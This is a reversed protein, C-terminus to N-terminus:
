AQHGFSIHVYIYIYIYLSVLSVEVESRCKPHLYNALAHGVPDLMDPETAASEDSQFLPKALGNIEAVNMELDLKIIPIDATLIVSQLEKAVKTLEEMNKLRQQNIAVLIQGTAIGEEAFRISDQLLLQITHTGDVESDSWQRCEHALVENMAQFSNRPTLEHELARAAGESTNGAWTRERLLEGRFWFALHQKQIISTASRSLCCALMGCATDRIREANPYGEEQLSITGWSSCPPLRPGVGADQSTCLWSALDDLDNSSPCQGTTHWKGGVYIAAGAAEAIQMVVHGNQGRLLESAMSETFGEVHYPSEEINKLIKCIARQALNVKEQAHTDM